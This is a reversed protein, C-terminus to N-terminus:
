TKVYAPLMQRIARKGIPSLSFYGRLTLGVQCQSRGPVSVGHAPHLYLWRVAECQELGRQRPSQKKWLSPKRGDLCALFNRLSKTLATTRRCSLRTGEGIELGGVSRSFRFSHSTIPKAFSSSIGFFVNIAQIRRPQTRTMRCSGPYRPRMIQQASVSSRSRSRLSRCVFCPQHSGGSGGSSVM